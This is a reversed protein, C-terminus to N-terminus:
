KFFLNVKRPVPKPDVGQRKRCQPCYTNGEHYLWGHLVAFDIAGHITPRCRYFAKCAKGDCEVSFMMRISM